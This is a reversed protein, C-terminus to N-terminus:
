ADSAPASTDRLQFRQAFGWPCWSALLLETLYIM